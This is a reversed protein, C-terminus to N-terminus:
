AATMVLVVLAGLGLVLIAFLAAVLRERAGLGITPRDAHEVSRVDRNPAVKPMVTAATISAYMNM